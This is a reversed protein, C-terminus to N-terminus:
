PIEADQGHTDPRSPQNGFPQRRAKFCVPAPRARHACYLFPTLYRIGSRRRHSAPPTGCSRPTAETRHTQPHLNVSVTLPTTTLPTTRHRHEYPAMYRIDSHRLGARRISHLLREAQEHARAIRTVLVPSTALTGNATGDPDTPEARHERYQNRSRRSETPYAYPNLMPKCTSDKGTLPAARQSRVSDTNREPMTLALRTPGADPCPSRWGNMRQMVLSRGVLNSLCIGTPPAPMAIQM